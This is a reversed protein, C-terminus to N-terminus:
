SGAISPVCCQEELDSIPFGVGIFASCARFAPGHFPGVSICRQSLSDRGCVHCSSPGYLVNLM